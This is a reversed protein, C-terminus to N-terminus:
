QQQSVTQAANFHRYIRMAHGGVHVAVVALLILRGITRWNLTM